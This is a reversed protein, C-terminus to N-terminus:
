WELDAEHRSALCDPPAWRGSQADALESHRVQKPDAAAEAAWATVTRVARTRSSPQPAQPLSRQEPWVPSESQGEPVAAPELQSVEAAVVVRRPRAPSPHSHVAPECASAVAARFGAAPVALRDQSQPLRPASQLRESGPGDALAPLVAPCAAVAPGYRHCLRAYAMRGPHCGDRWEPEEPERAALASAPVGQVAAPPVLAM